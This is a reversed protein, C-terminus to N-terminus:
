NSKATLGLKSLILNVLYEDSSGWNNYEEGEIRLGECKFINGNEDKIMATVDVYSGLQLNMIRLEVSGSTYTTIFDKPLVDVVYSSSM